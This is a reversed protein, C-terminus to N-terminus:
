SNSQLHYLLEDRTIMGSHRWQIKGNKFIILTPVAHVNYVHSAQPNKDIDVKIIRAKDGIIKAVDQLVPNLAKCPGCWVASFDVLVPINGNVLQDFTQM